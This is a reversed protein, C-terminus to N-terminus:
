DKDAIPHLKSNGTTFRGDEVLVNVAEGSVLGKWGAVILRDGNELGSGILLRDGRISIPEIVRVEIRQVGESKEVVLVRPGEDTVQVAKVPIVIARPYYLYEIKGRAIFGHRMAAGPNLLRIEVKYTNSEPDAAQAIRVIKADFALNDGTDGTLKPLGPIILQARIHSQAGPMNMHIFSQAAPNEPDLFAVYRDPVNVTARVYDLDYIYALPVGAAVVEGPEALHEEIRGSIPARLGTKNLQVNLSDISAELESIRADALELGAAAEKIQVEASRVGLGASAVAEGARAVALKAQTLVNKITDLRASNMVKKAVLNQVREYEIRALKLDSRAAEHALEQLKAQKRANALSVAASEKGIQALNANKSASYLSAKLEKINTVIVKQDLETVVQGKEVTDGEGALWRELVGDFEPSVAAVRDAEVRAPLSLTEKYPTPRITLVEVSALKKPPAVPESTKRLKAYIGVAMIITVLLGTICWPLISFIRNRIHRQSEIM